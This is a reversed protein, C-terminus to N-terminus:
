KSVTKTAEGIVKPRGEHCRFVEMSDQWGPLQPRGLILDDSDFLSSIAPQCERQSPTFSFLQLDKNNYKNDMNNAM